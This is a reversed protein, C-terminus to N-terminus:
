THHLFTRDGLQASSLIAWPYAEAQDKTLVLTSRAGAARDETRLLLLLKVLGMPQSLRQPNRSGVSSM